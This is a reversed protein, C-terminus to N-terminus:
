GRTSRRYMVMVIYVDGGPAAEKIVLKHPPFDLSGSKGATGNVCGSGPVIEYTTGDDAVEDYIHWTVVGVGLAYIKRCGRCDIPDSKAGSGLSTITYRKVGDKLDASTTLLVPNSAM